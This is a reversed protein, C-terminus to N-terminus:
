HTPRPPAPCSEAATSANSSQYPPNLMQPPPFSSLPSHSVPFQSVPVCPRMKTMSELSRDLIPSACCSSCLIMLSRSIFSASNSTNAFLCSMCPPSLRSCSPSPPSHQRHHSAINVSSTISRRFSLSSLLSLSCLPFSLIQFTCGLMAVVLSPRNSPKTLVPRDM